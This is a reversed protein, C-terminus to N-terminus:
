TIKSEWLCQQLVGWCVGFQRLYGEMKLDIQKCRVMGRFQRATLFIRGAHLKNKLFMKYHYYNNEMVAMYSYFNTNQLKSATYLFWPHFLCHSFHKKVKHLFGLLVDLFLEYHSSHVMFDFHPSTVFNGHYSFLVHLFLKQQPSILPPM